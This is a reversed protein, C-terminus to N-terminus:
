IDSDESKKKKEDDGAESDGAGEEPKAEVNEVEESDDESAKAKEKDTEPVIPAIVLEGSNINSRNEAFACRNMMEGAPNFTMTSVVTRGGVESKARFIKIACQPSLSFTLTKPVDTIDGTEFNKQSVLGQDLIVACDGSEGRLSTFLDDGTTRIRIQHAVGMKEIRYHRGELSISGTVCRVVVEDGDGTASYDFVSEGALNSCSFFPAGVSFMGEPLTRPLDLRICGSGIILTRAAEGIAIEKTSFEATNTVIVAAKEGFAFEARCDAGVAAEVQVKSGLPYFRGEEASVWETTRPKLIRASCGEVIRCRLLPYFFKEKKAKPASEVDASAAEAGDTATAEEQGAAPVYVAYACAAVAVLVWRAM